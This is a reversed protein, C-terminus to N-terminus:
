DCPLVLRFGFTFFVPDHLVANRAWVICFHNNTNFYGGRTLHYRGKEPGTPNIQPIDLYYDHWDSCWERINGSMDYIGLENPKKKGVPHLKGESNDLFWAVEDLNDSGSYRYGESKNGGRAAFEWEAETPLRYNKGTIENLYNIFYQTKHWTINNVPMDDGKYVSPNEGMLAMWQKQTVPYKAIYFSSLTVQHRPIYFSNCISDNCGMMFTGGEVFVMEPEAPHLNVTVLCNATINGMETTVTILTTGESIAKVLGNEVTAVKLNSSSWSINKNQVDNPYITATLIATESPLLFLSTSSLVVDSINKEKRCALTIIVLLVAFIIFYIITKKM